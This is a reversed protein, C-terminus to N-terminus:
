QKSFYQFAGAPRSFVYLEQVGLNKAVFMAAEILQVAVSAKSDPTAFEKGSFSPYKMLMNYGLSLLDESRGQGILSVLEAGLIGGKPKKHFNYILDKGSALYETIQEKSPSVVDEKSPIVAPPQYSASCISVCVIKDGEKENNKLTLNDTLDRYSINKLRNESLNTRLFTIMGEVKRKQNLAVLVVGNQIQELFTKEDFLLPQWCYNYLLLAEKLLPKDEQTLRLFEHTENKVFVATKEFDNQPITAKIVSRQVKGTSTVPLDEAKISKIYKPVEFPVITEIPSTFQYKLQMELEQLTKKGEKWCVVAGVEEGYREDKLGVVYAQDIDKNIEKLKSEIAVPSLNVGGKIIIEKSRGKLFFHRESEIVKYCGIDGTLFYGNKFAGKTAEENQMYGAMVAKGKVALEGEQGEKLINGEADMIEVGAWNMPKGISNERLLKAYLEKEIDLPVGTVRLATETQGYGQYLYIGFQEVFKQSDHPVVPASGIQIKVIKLQSKVVEFEEKKSLQDYCITPVISTFTAQTKALQQWFKSNSYGPVAAISAGAIFSALSFTTSNIHYLPLLVLFRDQETIHFWEQIGKANVLLNELSLEVGKPKATTGSTFLVLAPHSIGEQWIIEKEPAKFQALAELEEKSIVKKAGTLKLKYEFDKPTDRKMDLPVTVIGLAWASWSLLVLEISNPLALGLADGKRLGLSYQLWSATKIIEEKLEQYTYTKEAEGEQDCALLAKDQPRREALEFIHDKLNQIM